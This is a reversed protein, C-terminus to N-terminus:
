KNAHTGMMNRLKDGITLHNNCQGGKLFQTNDEIGKFNPFNKHLEEKEWTADDFSYGKWKIIYEM